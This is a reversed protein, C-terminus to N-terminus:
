GLAAYGALCFPPNGGCLDRHVKATPRTRHKAPATTETISGIRFLTDPTVSRGSDLDAVGGSSSVRGDEGSVLTVAFGPVGYEDRLTELDAILQDFSPESSLVPAFSFVVASVAVLSAALRM